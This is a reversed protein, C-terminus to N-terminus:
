ASGAAAAGGPRVVNWEDFSLPAPVRPRALLAVLVACPGVGRHPPPRSPPAFLTPPLGPLISDLGVHKDAVAGTTMAALFRRVLERYEMNVWRHGSAM